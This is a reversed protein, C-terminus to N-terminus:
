SVSTYDSTCALVELGIVIHGDLQLWDLSPRRLEMEFVLKVFGNPVFTHVSLQEHRTPYAQQEILVLM